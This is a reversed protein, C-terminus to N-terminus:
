SANGCGTGKNAEAFLRDITERQEKIINDRESLDYKLGDRLKTLKQVMEVILACFRVNQGTLIANPISNCDVILSDILGSSDYFGNGDNVPPPTSLNDM